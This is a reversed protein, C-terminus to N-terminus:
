VGLLQVQLTKDQRLAEADGAYAIHGSVMAYARDAMHLISIM